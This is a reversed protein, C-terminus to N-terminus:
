GPDRHRSRIVLFLTGSGIAFMVLSALLKALFESRGEMWISALGFFIAGVTSCVFIRYFILALEM